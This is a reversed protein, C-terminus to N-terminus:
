ITRVYTPIVISYRLDSLDTTNRMELDIQDLRHLQDSYGDKLDLQPPNALARSPIYERDPATKGPTTKHIQGAPLIHLQRVVSSLGDAHSYYITLIIICILLCLASLRFTRSLEM